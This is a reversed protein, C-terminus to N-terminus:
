WAQKVVVVKHSPMSREVEGRDNKPLSLKFIYEFGTSQNGSLARLYGYM